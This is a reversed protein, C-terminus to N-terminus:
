RKPKGKKPNKIKVIGTKQSRPKEEKIELNRIKVFAQIYILKYSIEWQFFGM